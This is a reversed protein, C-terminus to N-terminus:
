VSLGHSKILAARAEDFMAPSAPWPPPATAASQNPLYGECRIRGAPGLSAYGAADLRKDARTRWGRASPLIFDGSLLWAGNASKVVYGTFGPTHGPLPIAKM